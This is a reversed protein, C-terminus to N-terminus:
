FMELTGKKIAIKEVKNVIIIGGLIYGIGVVIEGLILKWIITGDVGMMIGRVAIISRTLPLAYSIIQLIEPLQKISFNSGTFILLIYQVLNLVFHMQDSILGLISLFIGFGMVAFMAIIFVFLIMVWPIGKLAIDFVICGLAFGITITILATVGSFFGKQLVIFIKSLNGVMISRIRGFYREGVFSNGLSFICSSTCLLFANGIIWEIINKTGYVYKDMVCYFVLTLFPYCTELLLFEELNFAARQGKFDLWSMYFFHLM